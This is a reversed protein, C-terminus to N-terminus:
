CCLINRMCCDVAGHEKWKMEVEDREEGSCGVAGAVGM